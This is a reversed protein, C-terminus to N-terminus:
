EMVRGACKLMAPGVSCCQVYKSSMVILSESDGLGTETRKTQRPLM